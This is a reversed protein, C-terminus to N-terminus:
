ILNYDKCRRNVSSRNVGLLEAIKSQNGLKEWLATMLKNDKLADKGLQAALELEPCSAEFVPKRKITEEHAQDQSKAIMLSHIKRKFESISTIRKAVLFNKDKMTLPAFTNKTDDQLAQHVYGDILDCLDEQTLSLLSPLSLSSTHLEQYLEPLILGQQVLTQLDHETSCIIRVDSFKRQESKLPSFIGYRIFYALKQQSTQDLYEINKILLTGQDLKELLAPESVQQLLPNIGFLKTTCKSDQAGQLNLIHLSERLSIKHILDTIDNIDDIHTQLLLARKQLSAQLLQIKTELLQEHNSPLLKNILTGAQTTELYLLYDRKSPDSLADLQLKIIDTPEPRRVTLVIGGSSENYPMATAILKQGNQTTICMSQTTKFREVQQALNILTATTPHKQQLNPNVGVLQQAEQNRFSFHKNKYFIIGIHNEIRDKLLKKISEKYQNVEQHKAHLEQKIDKAEQLMKYMNKQSLLHIAPALFQAFVLIKNQDEINYIKQSHEKQVTIYAILKNNNLIPIFLDCSIEKLFNSLEKVISNDTSFADFDIEHAIFIKHNKAIEIPNFGLKENNLFTEIKKQMIHSNKNTNRIHLNVHQKSVLFHEHFFNKTIFAVEQYNTALNLQETSEQFNANIQINPQVQVNDSLNLFRLQMITKYCFYFASLIFILAMNNFAIIHNAGIFQGYYFVPSFELFICIIHPIFIYFLLAKLQKKLIIPLEHDSLKKLITAISPIINAIWFGIITFYIYNYNPIRYNYMVLCTYDVIIFPCVIMEFTFFVKHILKFKNNKETLNELFLFLSHFKFSSLIWAIGLLTRTPGTKPSICRSFTSINEMIIAFIPILFFFLVNNNIYNYPQAFTIRLLNSSTKILITLSVIQLIAQVSNSNFLDYSVSCINIFQQFLELLFNM